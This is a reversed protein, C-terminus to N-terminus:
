VAPLSVRASTSDNLEVSRVERRHMKWGTIKTSHTAIRNNGLPVPSRCAVICHARELGDLDELATAANHHYARNIYTSSSIHLAILRARCLCSYGAGLCSVYFPVLVMMKSMNVYEGDGDSELRSLHFGGM